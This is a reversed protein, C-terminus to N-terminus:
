YCKVGGNKVELHLDAYDHVMPDHSALVVSMGQRQCLDHLLNMVDKATEQDLSATPEDAIIVSPTKAVARAIAIRQQQGGSMEMPKKKRNEYLGVANLAHSVRDKRENKSVGQRTLFYEINEEATLVPLLHFKQFVFGIDFRRIRNKEKEKLGAFCQNNFLVSGHQLPEILGLINLMTSKGSGSPGSFCVLSKKPINLSVKKLADVTMSGIKYSFCLDKIIYLFQDHTTM